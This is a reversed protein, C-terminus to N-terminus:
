RTAPERVLVYLARDPITTKFVEFGMPNARRSRTWHARGMNGFLARSCVIGQLFVLDKIVIEIRILLLFACRNTAVPNILVQSLLYSENGGQIPERWISEESATEGVNM